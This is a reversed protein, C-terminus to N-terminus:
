IIYKELVYYVGDENNSYESINNWRDLLMPDSNKMAVGIGAYEIMALDNLSNGIALIEDRNINYKRALYKVGEGKSVNKPIYEISNQTSMTKVSNKTKIKNYLEKMDTEESITVIMNAGAPLKESLSQGLEVWKVEHHEIFNRTREDMKEIYLIDDIYAKVYIGRDEAFKIINKSEELPIKKEYLIDKTESNAIIGGNYVVLPIDIGLIDSFQKSATYTRGTVLTVLIGKDILKRIKRETKLGIKFDDGILTGDIDIAVLKIM